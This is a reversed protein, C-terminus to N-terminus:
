RASRRGVIVAPGSIALQRELRELNRNVVEALETGAPAREFLAGEHAVLVRVEEFGNAELLHIWTPAHLPRGPALDAAVQEEPSDGVLQGATIVALVGGSTLAAGSADLLALQQGLGLRDVCGVLVLGGLGGDPVRRLHDLVEDERVELGLAAARDAASGRPEVGYADLGRGVLEGLLAGAGCEGVVVRGRTALEDAIADAWRSGDAPPPGDVLERRVRPSTAPVVEELADVRRGLLRLSRSATTAFATVQDTLYKGYFFVAKRVLRKLASGGPKESLVPVHADVHALEEAATLAADFDESAAPPAIRGFVADLEREFAPSVIGERRLRRAERQIEAMVRQHDVLGAAEDDSEPVPPGPPAEEGVTV